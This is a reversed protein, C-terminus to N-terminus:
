KYRFWIGLNITFHSNDINENTKTYLESIRNSIDILYISRQM